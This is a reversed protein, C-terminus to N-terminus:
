YVPLRGQKRARHRELEQDLWELWIGQIKKKSEPLKMKYLCVINLKEVVADVSDWLSGHWRGNCYLAEAIDACVPCTKTQWFSGDNFGSALEYQSKKPIICGCESCNWQKGANVMVCRYGTCEDGGSYTLCVGCDSM